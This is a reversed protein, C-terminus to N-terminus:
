RLLIAHQPITCQFKLLSKFHGFPIRHIIEIPWYYKVAQVPFHNVGLVGVVSCVASLDSVFSNTIGILVEKLYLICKIM